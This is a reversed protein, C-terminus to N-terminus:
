AGKAIAAAFADTSMAFAIALVSIPNMAHPSDLTFTAVVRRHRRMFCGLGDNSATRRSTAARTNATEAHAEALAVHADVNALGITSAEGPLPEASGDTM